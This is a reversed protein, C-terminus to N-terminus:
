AEPYDPQWLSPLLADLEAVISTDPRADARVLEILPRPHDKSVRLYALTSAM